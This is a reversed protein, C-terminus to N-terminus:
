FINTLTGGGLDYDARLTAFWSKARIFGTHDLSLDFSDRHFLGHNQGPAGDGTTKLYELKGVVRLPGSEWLLGGRLITTEAEGFSAGNFDNRFWGGDYNHYAGIRFALGDAIPGSAVASMTMSPSGR